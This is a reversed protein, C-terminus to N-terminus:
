GCICHQCVVLTEYEHIWYSRMIMRVKDHRTMANETSEPRTDDTVHCCSCTIAVIFCMTTLKM